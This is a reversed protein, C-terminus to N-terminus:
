SSMINIYSEILKSWHRDQWYFTSNRSAEKLFSRKLRNINQKLCQHYPRVLRGRDFDIIFVRQEQDFLINNINLDAHYVGQQHFAAITEGVKSIEAAALPRHQLVELLSQAGTIEQTLLDGRYVLGAKKIQAGIPTPVSLGRKQLELLLTFEQYTRTKKLGTFLYQDSLIKGVLGGRWYHRLVATGTSYKVFWTTSRGKKEAIIAKQSRWYDPSFWDQNIKLPNTVATLLTHNGNNIIDLM